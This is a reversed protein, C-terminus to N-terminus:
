SKGTGNKVVECSHHAKKLEGCASDAETQTMPASTVGFGKGSNDPVVVVDHLISGYKTRLHDRESQAQKETKASALQVRYDSLASLKARAEDAEPGTSYKKLFDQLAAATGTSEATKLDASRQLTTVADQADKTHSGAPQKQLYDHYADLTNAQKAQSWAEDDQLSHIRDSAQISYEGTPHKSLYEQYASITNATNAKNWDEQVSSCAWVTAATLLVLTVRLKYM